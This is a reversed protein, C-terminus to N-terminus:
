DEYVSLGHIVVVGKGGIGEEYCWVARVDDGVLFAVGGRVVGM